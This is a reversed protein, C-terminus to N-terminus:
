VLRGALLIALALLSKRLIKLAKYLQADVTRCSINLDAAIDKSKQQYLYSRKFIERCKDPLKELSKYVKNLVYEDVTYEINEELFDIEALQLEVVDLRNFGNTRCLHKLRNKCANLVCRYLFFRIEEEPISIKKQMWMKTFVDHVIDLAEEQPVFKCAYRTLGNVYRRYIRNFLIVDAANNEPIDVNDSNVTQLLTVFESESYPM